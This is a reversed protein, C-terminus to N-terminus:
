ALPAQAKALAGNFSQLINFTHKPSGASRWHSFWPFGENNFNAVFDRVLSPIGYVIGQGKQHNSKTHTHTHGDNKIRHRHSEKLFKPSRAVEQISECLIGQLYGTPFDLVPFNGELLSMMQAVQRWPFDM